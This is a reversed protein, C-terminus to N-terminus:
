KSQNYKDLFFWFTNTSYKMTTLWAGHIMGLESINNSEYKLVSWFNHDKNGLIVIELWEILCRIISKM